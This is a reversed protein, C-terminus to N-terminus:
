GFRETADPRSPKLLVDEVLELCTGKTDGPVGGADRRKSYGYGYWGKHCPIPFGSHM